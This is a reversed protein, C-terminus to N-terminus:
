KEAFSKLVVKTLKRKQSNGLIGSVIPDFIASLAKLVGRTPAVTRVLLFRMLRVLNSNFM